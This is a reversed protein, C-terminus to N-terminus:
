RGSGSVENKNDWKEKMQSVFEIIDDAIEERSGHPISRLIKKLEDLKQDAAMYDVDLGM